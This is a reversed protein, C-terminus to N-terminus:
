MLVIQVSVLAVAILIGLFTKDYTAANNAQQNNGTPQVIVVKTETGSHTTHTSTANTPTCVNKSIVITTMFPTAFVTVTGSPCAPCTQVPATAIPVVGQV